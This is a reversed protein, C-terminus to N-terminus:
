PTRKKASAAARQVARLMRVHSGCRCLTGALARRIEAESPDPNKRMLAAATLLVGNVCYGCQMAQEEIFATQLPHPASRSGLGELTIVERGAAESLPLVCSPVAEGDLLVKCAGCQALGCGFKPGNLRLDNRLVYLLPTDPDVELQHTKGNVNLSVPM